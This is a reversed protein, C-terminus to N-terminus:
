QRLATCRQENGGLGICKTLLLATENFLTEALCCFFLRNGLREVPKRVRKGLISARHFHQFTQSSNTKNSVRQLVFILETTDSVQANPGTNLLGARITSAQVATCSLSVVFSGRRLVAPEMFFAPLFGAKDYSHKHM